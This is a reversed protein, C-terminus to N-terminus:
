SGETGVTRRSRRSRRSRRKRAIASLLVLVTVDDPTQGSDAIVALLASLFALALASGLLLLLAASDILRL